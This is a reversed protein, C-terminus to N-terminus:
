RKVRYVWFPQGQPDGVPTLWDPVDGDRLHGWLSGATETDSLGLPGQAGCRVLYDANTGTLVRRAEQPPLAFVRHATLIAASMRHYPGALVSHPTWALLYPGWELQDAIMLGVPLRALAAYNQLNVCAQRDPPNIDVGEATGAATAISMVGLTVTMPTVLMTAVFRAVLSDLKLRRLVSLAAVAVLPAGLWLAYAYFKNVEIMIALALLFAAAATLFGFDRRLSRAVLLTALLGVAPFSAEAVGSLPMTHLMSMLSQMESIRNLWLVRVVPDMMAFPGGICRPEFSLGVAVAAVAVGALAAGRRWPAHATDLFSILGLGLGGVMVAATSNIALEDCVGVLWHDPGVSVLFAAVTSVALSVGYARLRSAAAHDLVFGVALAVGCLVLIPLGELGIALALGTVAGAAWAAWPKRDSWATAAVALAALAIQVNHHDIRGPRFQGMGPLGFVALLLAACAAERGALRWAIAATAGIMPILWLVPWVGTMLREALAPDAFSRFSIFLGALGADILRSWHSDYGAPPDFRAQHLDFWGQGALFARVQVLRLADDTDPLTTATAAWFQAMIQIGVLICALWFLIAFSPQQTTGRTM